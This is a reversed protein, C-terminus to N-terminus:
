TFGKLNEVDYTIVGTSQGSALGRNAMVTLQKREYKNVDSQIVNQAGTITISISGAPTLTTWDLIQKGTTLCDLRYEATTTSDAAQTARDRFYATATLQSGEKWSRRPIQIEIQDAM